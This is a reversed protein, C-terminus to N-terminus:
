KGTPSLLSICDLLEKKVQESSTFRAGEFKNPTLESGNWTFCNCAISWHGRTMKRVAGAEMLQIIFFKLDQIDKKWDIKNLVKDGSFLKKFHPKKGSIYKKSILNEFLDNVRTSNRSDDYHVYKFSSNKSTKKLSNKKLLSRELPAVEEQFEMLDFYLINNKISTIIKSVCYDLLENYENKDSVKLKESASRIYNITNILFKFIPETKEHREEYLALRTKIIDTIVGILSYADFTDEDEHVHSIGGEGLLNFEEDFWCFDFFSIIETYELETEDVQVLEDESYNEPDSIFEDDVARITVVLKDTTANYNKSSNFRERQNSYWDISMKSLEESLEEKLSM